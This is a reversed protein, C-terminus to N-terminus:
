PKEELQLRDAYEKLDSLFDQSARTLEPFQALYDDLPKRADHKRRLEMDVKSLEVLLRLRIEAVADNLFAAIDPPRAAAWSQEFQSAVEDIWEDRSMLGPNVKM